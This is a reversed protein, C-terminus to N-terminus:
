WSGSAYRYEASQRLYIERLGIGVVAHRLASRTDVPFGVSCGHPQVTEPQFRALSIYEIGILFRVIADAKHLVFLKLIEVAPTLMFFNRFEDM